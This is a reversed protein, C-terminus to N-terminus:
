VKGAVAADFDVRPFVELHGGVTANLVRVGRPELFARAARYSREMREVNPDHWRYGKGFYDPHVHNPDDTESTIVGNVINKPVQYNHDFGVLFIPNCGLHYALQLNLFSVTGGFYVVEEFRDSFRPFGRYERVFHCYITRADAHLVYAVDHPFIKTSSTLTNLVGARDEAVLTDEVTLFTPAWGLKDYILFLANSGITVHDKLKTVDAKLLSPGNAIVWGPRGGYCGRLGRLAHRHRRGQPRIWWLAESAARAGSRVRRTVVGALRSPFAIARTEDNM